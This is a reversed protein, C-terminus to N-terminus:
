IMDKYAKSMQHYFERDFMIKEAEDAMNNKKLYCYLAMLAQEGEAMGQAKGEAIGQAMGQAKGEAIGQAMGQAKGEAIGQAIGQAKGEALGEARGQALAEAKGEAMYREMLECMRHLGGETNKFRNVRSSFVPFKPNNVDKQIFCRMLEAVDSGDDICTNVFIEQLGDDIATGTERIVKDIHYLTKGYGLFDFESIYVICVNPIDAFLEGSEFEVKTISAANFRVRRLHDDHKSRQVEVNCKTGNGLTCLADLRVSRGYVNRLASQVVVDMVTLEGDELIVRLIEQCFAIDEALLEFFVDDIPRLEAVYAEKEEYTKSM